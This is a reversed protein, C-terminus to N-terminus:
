ECKTTPCCWPTCRSPTSLTPTTAFWVRSDSNVSRLLNSQFCLYCCAMFYCCWYFIPNNVNILDPLLLKIYIFIHKSNLTLHSCHDFLIVATPGPSTGPLYAAGRVSIVPLIGLRSPSWSLEIRTDGIYINTKFIKLFYTYNSIKFNNDRREFDFFWYYHKINCEM